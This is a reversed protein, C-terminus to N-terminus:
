KWRGIATINIYYNVNYNIITATCLYIKQPATKTHSGGNLVWVTTEQEVNITTAPIESFAQPFNKLTLIPSAYLSGWPNEVKITITYRQYCIMTGDLFKIWSGNANSGSDYLEVIQEGKILVEKDMIKKLIPM